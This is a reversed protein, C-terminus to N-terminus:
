STENFMYRYIKWKNNVRKLVFLERSNNNIVINKELIKIKGDSTTRVFAIGGFQEIEDIHFEVNLDLMQFVHEYAKKVQKKGVASPKKSPMFVGDDTYLPVVSATDSSNLAQQYSNLLHKIQKREAQNQDASATLPIASVLLVITLLRKCINQHYKVSMLKRRTSKTKTAFSYM